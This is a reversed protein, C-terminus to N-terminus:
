LTAFVGVVFALASLIGSAISGFWTMRIIRERSAADPPVPREGTRLTDPEAYGYYLMERADANIWSVFGCGLGLVTGAVFYIVGETGAHDSNAIPILAGANILLLSALMWKSLEVRERAAERQEAVYFEYFARDAEFAGDTSPESM